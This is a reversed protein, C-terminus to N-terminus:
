NAGLSDSVQTRDSNRLYLTGFEPEPLLFAETASVTIHGHFSVPETVLLNCCVDAVLQVDDTLYQPAQGSLSKHGLRGVIPIAVSVVLYRPRMLPQFTAQLVCLKDECNM